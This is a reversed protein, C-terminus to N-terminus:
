ALHNLFDELKEFDDGQYRILFPNATVSVTANLEQIGAKVLAKKVWFVLEQPGDVEFRLNEIEFEL